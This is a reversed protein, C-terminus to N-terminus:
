AGTASDPDNSPGFTTLWVIGRSSIELVPFRRLERWPREASDFEVVEYRRGCTRWSVCPAVNPEADWPILARHKLEAIAADLTDFEGQPEAHSEDEIVFTSKRYTTV